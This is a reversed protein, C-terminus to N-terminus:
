VAYWCGVVVPHLVVGNGCNGRGRREGQSWSRGVTGAGGGIGGAGSCILHALHLATSRLISPRESRKSGGLFTQVTSGRDTRGGM